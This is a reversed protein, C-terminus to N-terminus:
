RHEGAAGTLKFTYFRTCTPRKCGCKFRLLKKEVKALIMPVHDTSAKGTNFFITAGPPIIIAEGDGCLLALHNVDPEKGMNRDEAREIPM